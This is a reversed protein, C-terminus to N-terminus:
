FLSHLFLKLAREEEEEEAEAKEEEEEEEKEELLAESIEEGRGKSDVEDGVDEREACVGPAEERIGISEEADM